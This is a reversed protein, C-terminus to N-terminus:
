SQPAAKYWNAHLARPASIAILIQVSQTAAFRVPTRRSNAVWIANLM